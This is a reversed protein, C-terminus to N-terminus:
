TNKKGSRSVGSDYYADVVDHRCSIAEIWMRLGDHIEKQYQPTDTTTEDDKPNNKEEEPAMDGDSKKRSVEQFVSPQVMLIAEAHVSKDRGARGGRQLWIDLSKPVSFQVM